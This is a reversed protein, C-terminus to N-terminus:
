GPKKDQLAQERAELVSREMALAAEAIMFELADVPGIPKRDPLNDGYFLLAVAGGVIMPVVVVEGPEAGGLRHILHRNWRADPLTGQFTKRKEVVERLVSPESLPVVTERVQDAASGTPVQVGFQGIGRLEDPRVVFLVGRSLIQSAYRMLRLTVEATVAPASALPLVDGLLAPERGPEEAPAPRSSAAAFAGTTFAGRAFAGTAFSGRAFASAPFSGTAYADAAESATPPVPPATDGLMDQPSFGEALVFDKVDVEIEGGPAFAVTEFQFFGTKWRVLEAVVDETQQRMVERLAKEDVKGMEVLVHGLRPPPSTRHQRELADLLDAESVLGRLVLIHGFSERMSSSAAYIIRGGRFALIAQGDRKTLTLKGSAGQRALSRLLEAMDQDELRGSFSMQLTERLLRAARTPEVLVGQAEDCGLRRLMELQAENEVGQAMVKLKLSRAVAAVATILSADDSHTTAGRPFALDLKIADAPLQALRSLSAYGLGFRDLVVAVGLDRLTRLTKESRPVDEMVHSEPIEMQLARPALGTEDLAAEVHEVLDPSLMEAGSLNVALRLSRHRRQWARAQLCAARLIWPGIALILGTFDSRSLFDQPFVLGLQPHQWRLLAEM